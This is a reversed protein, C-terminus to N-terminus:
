IALTTWIATIGMRRELKSAIEAAENGKTREMWVGDVVEGSAEFPPRVEDPADPEADPEIATATSM